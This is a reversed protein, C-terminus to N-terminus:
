DDFASPIALVKAAREEAQVQRQHRLDDCYVRLSDGISTGFKEAQTLMLGLQQLEELGTRMALNRLAQERPAGARTPYM